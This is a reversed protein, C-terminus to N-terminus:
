DRLSILPWGHQLAYQRLTDDPDVATARAVKKMLPLDNHSDSYFCSNQLTMGQEQLWAELRTVKGQQFCPTGSVKGTYAGNRMEPETALLHPINLLEAIRETVFRNTATIIMLSDGAARHKEILDVGKPLIVPKIYHEIFEERWEQLQALPHTALPQLSFALFEMIDLTGAKYAAYFYDNAAKYSAVDVVGIHCLYEGWLHDSDDSLLTNDLDFLALSM